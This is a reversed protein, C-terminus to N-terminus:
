IARDRSWHPATEIQFVFRDPDGECLKKLEDGLYGMAVSRNGAQSKASSSLHGRWFSQRIEIVNHEFNLHKEQLGLIESVRLTCFLAVCCALRVDYPLAALLHRTQNDTLKRKERKVEKPGVHVHEVPNADQWYRWIIAQTYMGSPINRIDTRAYWGLNPALGDIWDQLISGETLDCLRRDGFAPRIYNKIHTIYKEQTSPRKKKVHKAIYQDLFRGVNIQCSIVYHAQNIVALMENMKAQAERKGMKGINQRPRARVLKGDKGVVDKRVRFFWIGHKTQELKPQQYRQRPVSEGYGILRSISLGLPNKSVNAL